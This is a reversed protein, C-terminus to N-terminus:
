GSNRRARIRAKAEDFSTTAEHIRSDAVANDYQDEVLREYDKIPLVAHTKKGKRDVLFSVQSPFTNM